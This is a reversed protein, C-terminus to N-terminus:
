PTRAEGLLRTVDEDTTQRFDRYWAGVGHFPRPTELCVVEDVLPAIRERAERAATPVAVVLRAPRQQRAARVAAEMTAGTALGDDVLIAVKGALDPPPRDGRYAESRRELEARERETVRDLAADPVGVTRIIESNLVRVGGDAIAGM